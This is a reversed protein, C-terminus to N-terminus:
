KLKLIGPQKSKNQQEFLGLLHRYNNPNNLKTEICIYQVNQGSAKQKPRLRQKM